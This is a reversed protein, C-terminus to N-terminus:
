ILDMLVPFHRGIYYIIILYGLHIPLSYIERKSLILDKTQKIGMLACMVTFIICFSMFLKNYKKNAFMISVIPIYLANQLLNMVVLHTWEHTSMTFKTKEFDLIRVAQRIMIIIISYYCFKVGFSKRYSLAQIIFCIITFAMYICNVTYQSTDEHPDM